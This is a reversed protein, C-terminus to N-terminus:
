PSTLIFVEVALLMIQLCDNENTIYLYLLVLYLKEHEDYQGIFISLRSGPETTATATKRESETPFGFKSRIEADVKDNKAEKKHNLPFCASSSFRLPSPSPASKTKIRNLGLSSASLIASEENESPKKNSRDTDNNNGDDKVEENKARRIPIRPIKKLLLKARTSSPTSVSPTSTSPDRNHSSM